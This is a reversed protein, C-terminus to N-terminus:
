GAQEKCTCQVLVTEASEMDEDERPRLRLRASHLLIDLGRVINEVQAHDLKLETTQATAV